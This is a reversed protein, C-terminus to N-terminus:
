DAQADACRTNSDKGTFTAVEFVVKGDRQQYPKVIPASWDLRTQWQRFRNSRDGTILVLVVDKGECLRERALDFDEHTRMEMSAQTLFATPMYLGWDPLILLRNHSGALLDKGLQNNADSFMAVGGTRRLTEIELKNGAINIVFLGVAIAAAAFLVITRRPFPTAGHAGLAAALGAYSLPVMAMFHHGSTRPGFLVAVLLFSFQLGMVLRLLPTACHRWEAVLWLMPPVAILIFYKIFVGPTASWETFMMYHHWTNMIVMNLSSEVHALRVSPTIASDAASLIPQASLYYSIAEDLGGMHRAVLLFGAFYLLAGVTMGLVPMLSHVLRASGTAPKGPLLWCAALLAPMFFTYIFYGWCSLGGLVGCVALWRLRATGSSGHAKLLAVASLMLFAAPAMTIYSQTRFAYVFSPDIALVVGIAITIAISQGGARQMAYWAALVALAFMAHTLRLGVVTMGFVWFFPASLWLQLSGHQLGVLLPYSGLIDNGPAIWAPIWQADPNLWRAVLYDPNVADMYIGPLEIERTAAMLYALAMLLFPGIALIFAILGHKIRQPVDSHLTESLFGM